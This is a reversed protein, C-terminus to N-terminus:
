AEGVTTTDDIRVPPELLLRWPAPCVSWHISAAYAIQGPRGAFRHGCECWAEVPATTKPRTM